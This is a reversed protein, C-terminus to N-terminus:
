LVKRLADAAITDRLVDGGAWASGGWRLKAIGAIVYTAVLVAALLRLPWGYRAHPAPEDRHRADLSYADASRTVALVLAYLVLANETHFIQGWSSSYTLTWLLLLAGVPGTIRFRWGLTFGLMALWTLALLAIVGADPPLGTVSVVGIPALQAEPFGTYSAIHLARLALYVLAFAGVLVRVAALRRAPAEPMWARELARGLARPSTVARGRRGPLAGAGERPRARRPRLLRHRRPPRAR